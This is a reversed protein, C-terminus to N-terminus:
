REGGIQEDGQIRDSHRNKKRHRSFSIREQFPARSSGALELVGGGLVELGFHFFEAQANVVGFLAGADSRAASAWLWSSSSCVYEPSGCTAALRVRPFCRRTM